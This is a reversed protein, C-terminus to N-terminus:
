IFYINIVTIKGNNNNKNFSKKADSVIKRKRLVGVISIPDFLM